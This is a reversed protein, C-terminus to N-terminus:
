VTCWLLVLGQEGGDVKACLTLPWILQCMWSLSVVLISYVVAYFQMLIQGSNKLNSATKNNL